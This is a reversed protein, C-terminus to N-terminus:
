DKEELAKKTLSIICDKTKGTVIFRNKHCFIAGKVGSVKELNKNELGAWSKPFDKKNKFSKEKILVAKSVWNKDKFPFVIFKINKNEIILKKPLGQQPLVVFNDKSFKLCNKVIKNGEIISNAKQIERLLIDSAMKVAKNFQENESINENWFPNLSVIRDRISYINIKNKILGLGNDRADIGEILEKDVYEWVEKSEVIKKGFHKWILGCSSYPIKNKRIPSNIQHHDFDNTKFNYKGGVDIRMDANKIKKIDRTRVVKFNSYIQKLIAISMVEDAHFKGNHTVIILKKKM